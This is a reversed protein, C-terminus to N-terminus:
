LGLLTTQRDTKQDTQQLLSGQLFSWVLRSATHTSSEPPGQFGHILHTWIAVHSPAIKLPFPHGMTFYLSVRHDDTCFRSFRDLHRKTIPESPGLSHHTLHPGSGGHIAAIKPLPACMTFYLSKRGHATYCSSLQQQSPCGNPRLLSPRSLPPSSHGKETPTFQTVM